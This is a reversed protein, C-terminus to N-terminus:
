KTDATLRLPLGATESAYRRRHEDDAAGTRALPAGAKAEPLALGRDRLPARFVRTGRDRELEFDLPAIAGKSWGFAEFAIQSAPMARAKGAVLGIQFPAAFAAQHVRLDDTSFFISHADCDTRTWCAECPPHVHAWGTCTEGPEL